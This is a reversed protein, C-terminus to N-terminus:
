KKHYKVPPKGERCWEATMTNSISWNVVYRTHLDIIACLYMFGKKMPIYTIDTAWVQNPRDIVLGKLLYPYIKHGKGPKSTNRGRFLTKWGMIGMLRAVRKRNVAYGQDQLWATLRRIGYFPTKFYQEDLLRMIILNEESELCPTYYIGSRHMSLLRCQEVLSLQCHDKEIM